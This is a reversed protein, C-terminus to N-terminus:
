VEVAVRAGQARRTLTAFDPDHPQEAALRAMAEPDPHWLGVEWEMLRRSGVLGADYRATAEEWEGSKLETMLMDGVDTQGSNGDYDVLIALPPAGDALPEIPPADRESPPAPPAYRE